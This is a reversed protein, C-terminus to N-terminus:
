RHSILFVTIQSQGPLGHNLSQAELSPPVPESILSSLDQTSYNLGLAALYIFLYFGVHQTTLGIYIYIYIHTHVTLFFVCTGVLPLLQSHSAKGEGSHVMACLHFSLHDLFAQALALSSDPHDAGGQQCPSM